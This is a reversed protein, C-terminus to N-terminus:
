QCVKAKEIFSLICEGMIAVQESLTGQPNCDVKEVICKQPVSVKVERDIYEIKPKCDKSCGSFTMLTSVVLLMSLM